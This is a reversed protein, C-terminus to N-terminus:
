SKATTKTFALRCGLPELNLATEAVQEATATQQGYWSREFASTLASLQPRFAHDPPLLRLYERHTRERETKWASLEELRYVAAWYGCRLAERYNGDEAAAHAEILWDKVSKERLAMTDVKLSPAAASFRVVRLVWVVALGFLVAIVAWVLLDGVGRTNVFRRALSSLIRELWAVIAERLRDFWSPDRRVARFEPRALIERAKHRAQDVPMAPEDRRALAEARMAELRATIARMLEPRRQAGAQSTDLRDKIWDTSVVFREAGDRVTWAEPLSENITKLDSDRGAARLANICRDLEAIYQLTELEATHSPTAAALVLLLLAPFIIIPRM